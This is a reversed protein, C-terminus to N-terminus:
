KASAGLYRVSAAKIKPTLKAWNVAMHEAQAQEFLTQLQDLGATIENRLQERPKQDQGAQELRTKIEEVRALMQDLLTLLRQGHVERAPVKPTEQM